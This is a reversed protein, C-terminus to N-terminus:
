DLSTVSIAVASTTLEPDRLHEMFKVDRLALLWPTGQYCIFALENYLRCSAGAVLSCTQLLRRTNLEICGKHVACFLVLQPWSRVGILAAISRLRFDLSFIRTEKEEAALLLVQRDELDPLVELLKAIKPRIAGPGYVPTV